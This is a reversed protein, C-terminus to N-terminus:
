TVDLKEIVRLKASRSRRNRELETASATVPKRTLRRFKAKGGCRCQVIEASCVCRQSLYKFRNKVLRDELSHFSVIAARGGVALVAPLFDLLKELSQLEHNVAIRLAQFTRTAPHIRVPGRASPVAGVIVEALEVTSKVESGRSKVARAIRRAYREEGYKFILDALEREDLRALLEAATEGRTPNMRMDLPGDSGFSFGREPRDLQWSSVGLDAVLLDCFDFGHETMLGQLDAYDGAVVTTDAEIETLKNRARDVAEPDRDVALIRGTGGVAAGIARAHGAGGVTADILREGPIPKMLDLIEEVLVPLHFMPGDIGDMAEM